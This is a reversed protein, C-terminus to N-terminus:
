ALHVALRSVKTSRQLGETRPATSKRLPKMGILDAIHRASKHIWTSVVLAARLIPAQPSHDLRALVSPKVSIDPLNSHLSRSCM